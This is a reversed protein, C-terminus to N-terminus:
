CAPGCRYPRWASGAGPGRWRGDRGGVRRQLDRDSARAGRPPRDAGIGDRGGGRLLGGANGIVTVALAVTLVRVGAYAFETACALLGTVIVILSVRRSTALRGNVVASLLGGAGAATLLVGYGGSGLGLSQRAYVVLQVTQAGYTFEVMAVVVILWLAFATTRVTRLGGALQAVGSTHRGAPAADPRMTSILVASVAFTAGNVLFAVWAPAVGLLIAGIAPGILVGLDQVTHLLANAPGLRVEGVLRPLLAMAAPKEACGAASALATFAIVLAVPGARAVTAAIAAMVLLRLADGALLVARRSYRDALAGGFPGLLM